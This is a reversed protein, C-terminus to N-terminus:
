GSNRGPGLGNLDAALVLSKDDDTRSCVRDSALFGALRARASMEDATDRAFSFLPEFFPPHPAGAPLQFALRILGDSMVALGSVRQRYVQYDVASLAEPRTLFNTENAYEGKQTRTAAFWCGSSDRAIVAGDGIQAVALCDGAAIACTLTTAYESVPESDGGALLRLAQHAQRFAEGLLDVWAEPRAPPRRRFSSELVRLAEAVAWQAGQASRRASGAGDALAILLPGGPVARYDVADQCVMGMREHSTGIVATGTVRWAPPPPSTPRRRRLFFWGSL